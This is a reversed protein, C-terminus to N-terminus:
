VLDTASLFLLSGFSAWLGGIGFVLLPLVILM